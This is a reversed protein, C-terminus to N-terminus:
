NFIILLRRHTNAGGRSYVPNGSLDPKERFIVLLIRKYLNQPKGAKPGRFMRKKLPLQQLKRIDM